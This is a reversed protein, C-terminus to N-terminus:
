KMAVSPAVGQFLKKELKAGDAKSLSITMAGLDRRVAVLVLRDIRTDLYVIEANLAIREDVADYYADRRARLAARAPAAEQAHPATEPRARARLIFFRLVRDILPSRHHDTLKQM